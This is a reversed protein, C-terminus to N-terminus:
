ITEAPIPFNAGVDVDTDQLNADEIGEQADDSTKAVFGNEFLERVRGRIRRMDREALDLRSCRDVQKTIIHLCAGSMQAFSLDDCGVIVPFMAAPKGVESYIM